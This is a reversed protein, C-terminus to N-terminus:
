YNHSQLENTLKNTHLSVTIVVRTGAPNGDGDTKDIIEISTNNGNLKNLAQVREESLSVGWSRNHRGSKQRLEMAKERGIGNDDITCIIMDAEKVFSIVLLANRGKNMLGHNIANEVFPQVLMSPFMLTERSITDDCRIEYEFKDEFRLKELECYLSLILVENQVTGFPERSADLFLRMLRALKVLYENARRKDMLNIYMQISNLANFIFHPNLQAQLLRLELDSIQKFAVTREAERKKITNIRYRYLLALVIAITIFGVLYFWSREWFPAAITFSMTSVPGDNTRVQFTYRDPSLGAFEITNELTTKWNTDGGSNLLRYAYSLNGGCSYCIGSFSVSIHNQKYGLKYNSAFPLESKDVAVKTFYVPIDRHVYDDRFICLGKSTAAYVTDDKVFVDNVKNDVLGTNLTYNKINASLSKGNYHYHLKCLGQYTAIWVNNRSTDVYLKSIIDSILGDRETFHKIQGDPLIATLGYSHSAVWVISDSGGSIFSVTNTLVSDEKAFLTVTWVDLDVKYLGDISGFWCHGRKDVYLATTRKDVVKFISKREKDYRDLTASSGILYQRSNQTEAIAKNYPLLAPTLSIIRLYKKSCLGIGGDTVVAITDGNLSVFSRIRSYMNDKRSLLLSGLVKGKWIIDITGMESGAYVVGKDVFLSQVNSSFLGTTKDLVTGNTKLLCYVGNEATSIWVNDDRDRMIGYISQGSLLSDEFTTDAKYIYVGRDTGFYLKTDIPVLRNVSFPFRHKFRDSPSTHIVLSDNKLSPRQKENIIRRSIFNYIAVKRNFTFIRLNGDQSWDMGLVENDPLGDKVTFNTFSHGDFRSLGADTAFWIFGERDQLSQYITNSPLGNVHLYQVLRRTQAPAYYGLALLLALLTLLCSRKLQLLVICGISLRLIFFAQTM